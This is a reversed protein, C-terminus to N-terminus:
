KNKKRELEMKELRQQFASKKHSEIGHRKMFNKQRNRARVMTIIGVSIVVLIVLSAPVWLPSTVLWWSADKMKGIEALKLTLLILFIISCLGIGGNTNTNSKM